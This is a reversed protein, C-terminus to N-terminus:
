IQVAWNSGHSLPNRRKTCCLLILLFHPSPGAKRNVCDPFATSKRAAPLFVSEGTLPETNTSPPPILTDPQTGPAHVETHRM